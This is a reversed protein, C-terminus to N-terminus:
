TALMARGVVVWLALLVFNSVAFAIFRHLVNNYGLHILSHLVRVGVYTWALPLAAVPVAPAQWALLCVVYFLLPLELLNMYNRNALMARQPVQPSEGLTFERPSVGATVRCVAVYLLVLGTWGALAFMPLLFSTDRM